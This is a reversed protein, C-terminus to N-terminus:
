ILRPSLDQLSAPAQLNQAATGFTAGALLALAPTM